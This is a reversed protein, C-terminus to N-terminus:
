LIFRTNENINNLIDEKIEETYQGAKLVVTPNEIDKLIKPSEVMLTTGYLRQGQKKADNDLVCIFDEEDLGYKLLFQTFIHAGFIFTKEGKQLSDKIKEIETDHYNIFNHYYSENEVSFHEEEVNSDKIACIFVCYKNFDSQEIIRLGCSCLMKHLLNKTVGYTHEFNMANTFGDNMMEDIVPSSIFMYSGDELLESMEKLEKFPNYLHEIVHSHIIADPKSLVSDKNFFEERLKIKETEKNGYCLLNTDYVTISNIKDNKELHKALHLKAGGIEIVNGSIYNNIFDAFSAHHLLWTKGVSNAHAKEYLIDLPILNKLQICNCSSCKMFVLDAFIDKEQPEETTGMFIPFRDISKLFTLNSGCSICCTREITKM